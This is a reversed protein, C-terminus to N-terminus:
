AAWREIEKVEGYSDGAEVDYLFPVPLWDYKDAVRQIIWKDLFKHLIGKKDVLIKKGGTKEVEQIDMISRPLEFTMSDHVTLLMKGDLSDLNNSVECLQSLVLDSATSQILFNVAERCAEAFLERNAHALRFRRFRGFHTKVFQRSRVQQKTSEIYQKLAPFNQFLLDIVRQAEQKTCGIQEAIKYAGAGYFTGFVVRKAIDRKKKIEKNWHRETEIIEYAMNYIKSATFSHIDLGNLLAEIMKQDHSYATYVRLEAGKIDVNVMLNDPTSPVFIKKINFGKHLVTEKGDKDKRVIRCMYPPINQMNPNASSLRGTSTGNLHMTCHIHGDRAALRRINRLFSTKAKHAARFELLSEAFERRHDGPEYHEIYRDLVDKGTSGPNAGDIREFNLKTMLKAVQAPSSYNVNADFKGRLEQESKILMKTVGEEVADLHEFDVKIGRFEMKSLTQSGPMYLYNMVARGEELTDTTILRQNQAKLTIRTVDADVAAYRLITELPVKEFGGDESEKKKKSPKKLDLMKYLQAIRTNHRKVITRDRVKTSKAKEQEKETISKVLDDWLAQDRGNPAKPTTQLDEEAIELIDVGDSTTQGRLIVHLEDDYGVYAPAYISTLKKLSYMGKKDEDLFHEGLMTDWVVRNVKLGYVDQLFKRDFKWNHFAKPKPCALLRKVESWAKQPDYPVEPHDLLITAAHGDDWAVSLMLVKSDPMFPHLTNTETDLAIAWQEPGRSRNEDYYNIVHDVLDRVEDLTKPFIYSKTLSELPAEDEDAESLALKTAQLFAALVINSWGPKKKVSSMEFVPIVNFKRDGATTQITTTLVRGVVNTIKAVPIGLAKLPTIGLSIIVPERGDIGQIGAIERMLNPQCFRVHEATPEYEGTLVAYTQYIKIDAYRGKQYKRVMDMLKNFLRGTPGYFPMEKGVSFGSPRDSVVILHAPNDGAGM